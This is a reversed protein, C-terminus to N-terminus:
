MGMNACATIVKRMKRSLFNATQLEFVSLRLLKRIFLRIIVFIKKRKQLSEFLSVTTVSTIRNVFIRNPSIHTSNGQAWCFILSPIEWQSHRLLAFSFLVTEIVIFRFLGQIHLKHCSYLYSMYEPWDSSFTAVNCVGTLGLFSLFSLSFWSNPLM